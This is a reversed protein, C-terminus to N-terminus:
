PGTLWCILPLAVSSPAPALGPPPSPARGPTAFHSWLGYSAAVVLAVYVLLLALLTAACFALRIKFARSRPIPGLRDPLAALLEDTSPEASAWPDAGPVVSGSTMSPPM